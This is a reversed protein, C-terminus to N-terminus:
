VRVFSLETSLLFILVIVVMVVGFRGLLIYNMYYKLILKEDFFIGVAKKIPASNNWTSVFVWCAFIREDSVMESNSM